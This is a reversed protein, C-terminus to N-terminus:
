CAAPATRGRDRHRRADAQVRGDAAQSREGGSAEDLPRVLAPPGPFVPSPCTSHPRHRDHACEEFGGRGVAGVAPRTITAGRRGADPSREAPCEYWSADTNCLADHSIFSALCTAYLVFM